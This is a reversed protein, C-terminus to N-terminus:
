LFLVLHLFFLCTFKRIVREVLGRMTELRVRSGRLKKDVM